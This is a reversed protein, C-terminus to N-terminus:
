NIWLDMVLCALLRCFDFAYLWVNISTNFLSLVFFFFVSPFHVREGNIFLYIFVISGYQRTGSIGMVPWPLVENVMLDSCEIPFFSSYDLLSAWGSPLFFFFPDIGWVFTLSVFVWMELYGWLNLGFFFLKESLNVGIGIWM